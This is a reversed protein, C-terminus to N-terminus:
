ARAAAARSGCGRRPNTSIPAHLSIRTAGSGRDRPVGGHTRSSRSRLGRQTQQPSHGTGKGSASSRTPCAWRAPGSGLGQVLGHSSGSKRKSKGNRASEHVCPVARRGSASSHRSPSRAWVSLRANSRSADGLCVRRPRSAPELHASPTTCSGRSRFSKARGGDRLSRSLRVKGQLKLFPQRIKM